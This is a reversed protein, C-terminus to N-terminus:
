YAKPFTQLFEYSKMLNIKEILNYWKLILNGRLNLGVNRHAATPNFLSTIEAVNAKAFGQQNEWTCCKM